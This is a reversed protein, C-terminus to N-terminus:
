NSEYQGRYKRDYMRFLEMAIEVLKNTRENIKDVSWNDNNVIDENLDLGNKYRIDKGDKSKRDRKDIFSM